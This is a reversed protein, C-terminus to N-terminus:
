PRPAQMQSFTSPSSALGFSSSDPLREGHPLVFPRAPKRPQQEALAIAKNWQSETLCISRARQQDHCLVRDGNANALEVRAEESVFTRKRELRADDATIPVLPMVAALISLLM